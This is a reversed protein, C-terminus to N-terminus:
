ALERRISTDVKVGVVRVGLDPLGHRALADRVAARVGPLGPLGAPDTTVAVVVTDDDLHARAARVGPAAGAAREAAREAARPAVLTTGPGATAVAVPRRALRPTPLQALALRGIAIGALLLGAGGAWRVAGSIWAADLRALEDLVRRHGLPDGDTGVVLLIAVVAAWAVPALLLWATLQGAVTAAGRAIRVRGRIV